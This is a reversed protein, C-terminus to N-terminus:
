VCVRVCVFVAFNAYVYVCRVEVCDCLLNGNRACDDLLDQTLWQASRDAYPSLQPVTVHLGVSRLWAWSESRAYDMSVFKSGEFRRRKLHANTYTQQIKGNAHTKTDTIRDATVRM